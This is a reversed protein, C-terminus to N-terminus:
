SASRGVPRYGVSRAFTTMLAPWRRWARDAAIGACSTPRAELAAGAEGAGLRGGLGNEEGESILLRQRGNGEGVGRNYGIGRPGRCLEDFEWACASALECSAALESSELM